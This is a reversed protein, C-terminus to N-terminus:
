EATAPVGDSPSSENGNRDVARIRYSYSAGATVQTDRYVPVELPQQNLRAALGEESGTSRYVNYGALDPESNPSWALEVAGPVTIARVNRPTAPPFKDAANVDIFTSPSSIATNQGEGAFSRIAYIYKHGFEFSSDLYELSDATGILTASQAPANDARFIQYRTGAPAPGGLASLAPASWSLVIAEETLKAEVNAPPQALDLIQASAINSLGAEKGNTGYIRVAVLVKQHIRDRTLPMDFVGQQGAGPLPGGSLTGVPRAQTVFNAPSAGDPTFMALIESKGIEGIRTGETTLSPATWTVHLRADVQVAALDRAVSPINLLPPLPEGPVGCGSLVCAMAIVAARVM